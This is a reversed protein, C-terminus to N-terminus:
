LLLRLKRIEDKLIFKTVMLKSIEDKTYIKTVTFDDKLEILSSLEGDLAKELSHM